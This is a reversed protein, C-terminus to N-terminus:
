SPWAVPRPAGQSTASPPSRRAAASRHRPHLTCPSAPFRVRATLDNPTASRQPGEVKTGLSNPQATFDGHTLPPVEAEARRRADRGCRDSLGNRMRWFGYGHAGGAGGAGARGLAGAPLRMTRAATRVRCRVSSGGPARPKACTPTSSAIRSAPIGTSMMPPVLMPATMAASHAARRHGWGSKESLNGRIQRTREPDDAVRTPVTPTTSSFAVSGTDAAFAGSGASRANTMWSRSGHSSRPSRKTPRTSCRVVPSARRNREISGRAWLWMM